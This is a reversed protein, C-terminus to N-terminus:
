SRLGDTQPRPPMALSKLERRSSGSQSRKAGSKSAAIERTGSSASASITVKILPGSAKVGSPSNMRPSLATAPKQTAAPKQACPMAPEPPMPLSIASHIM